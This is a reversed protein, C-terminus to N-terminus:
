AQQSYNPAEKTIHIDHPHSEKLGASTIRIFEADRRLDEITMNPAQPVLNSNEPEDFHKCSLLMASCIILLSRIPSYTFM